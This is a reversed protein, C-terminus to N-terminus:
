LTKVNVAVTVGLRSRQLDDSLSQGEVVSFLGLLDVPFTSVVM